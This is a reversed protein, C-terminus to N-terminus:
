LRLSAERAAAIRDLAEPSMPTLGVIVDDVGLAEYSQLVGALEEVSGRFAHPDGREPVRAPDEVWVGVTRRITERDRGEADLAADLAALRERLRDDPAGYWATNWADANRAAIRLIRPGTGAVLVPVRRDPRPLLAAGRAVHFRGEFTVTKGDLLATVIQVAEDLRPVRHDTPFGFADHEAEYWGAGIGLVLRGGSVADATAAMKALLTPARFPSCM